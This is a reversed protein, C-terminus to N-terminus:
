AEAPPQLTVGVRRDYHWIRVPAEFSTSINRQTLVEAPTGDAVISGHSMLIIRDFNLGALSLDHVVALVGVGRTRRLQTLRDLLKWQQGIDLHVTPEDLLLYPTEQALAMALVVRQAEGGSLSAYPRQSFDGTGTENFARRVAARDGTSPAGLFGIYPTRGLMVVDWCRLGFGIDLKQPVVAIKRALRRRGISALPDGDLVVRGSWPKLTGALVKLLTSKGAGNPGIIATADGPRLDISVRRLVPRRPYGADVAAATLAVNQESSM